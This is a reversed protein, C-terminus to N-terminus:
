VHLLEVFVCTLMHSCTSLPAHMSQVPCKMAEKDSQSEFCLMRSRRKRKHDCELATALARSITISHMRVQDWDKIKEYADGLNNWATTYGPQLEIARRYNKTALETRDM